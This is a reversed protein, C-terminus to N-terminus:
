VSTNVYFYTLSNVWQKDALQQDGMPRWVVIQVMCYQTITLQVMLFVSWPFKILTYYNGEHFHM